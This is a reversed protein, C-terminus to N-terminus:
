RITQGQVGCRFGQRLDRAPHAGGGARARLGSQARHRVVAHARLSLLPRNESIRNRASALQAIRTAIRLLVALAAAAATAPSPPHQLRARLPRRRGPHAGRGRRRAARRPRRRLPPGQRHDAARLAGRPAAKACSSPSGARGVEATRLGHLDIEAEPAFGSGRFGAPAPDAGDGRRARRRDAGRRARDKSACAAAWWRPCGSARPSITPSRGPAERRGARPGRDIRERKPRTSQRSAPTRRICCPRSRAAVAPATM